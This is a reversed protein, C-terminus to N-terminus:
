FSTRGAKFKFFIRKLLTRNSVGSIVAYLSCNLRATDRMRLVIRRTIFNTHRSARWHKYQPPPPLLYLNPQARQQIDVDLFHSRVVQCCHQVFHIIQPKYTIRILNVSDHLPWLRKQFTVSGATNGIHQFSPNGLCSYNRQSAASPVALM